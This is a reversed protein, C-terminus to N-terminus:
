QIDSLGSAWYAKAISSASMTGLIGSGEEERSKRLPKQCVTTWSHCPMSRRLYISWGCNRIREVTTASRDRVPHVLIICQNPTEDVGGENQQDLIFPGWRKAFFVIGNEMGGVTRQPVDSRNRRKLWHYPGCVFDSVFRQTVENM